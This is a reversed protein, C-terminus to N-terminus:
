FTSAVPKGACLRCFKMAVPVLFASPEASSKAAWGQAAAGVTSADWKFDMKSTAGADEGAPEPPTGAALRFAPRPRGAFRLALGLNPGPVAASRESAM